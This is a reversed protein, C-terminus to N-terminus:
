RTSSSYRTALYTAYAGARIKIGDVIIEVEDPDLLGIEVFKQLRQRIQDENMFGYMYAYTLQTRYWSFHRWLRRNKLLRKYYEVQKKYKDADIAYSQLLDQFLKDYNPLYQADTIFQRISPLLLVLTRYARRIELEFGFIKLEQETWGGQAMLSTVQKVVDEPVAFRIYLDEFARVVRNVETSITRAYLYQLWLNAYTPEVRRDKLVKKVYDVPVNIYEAMTVLQSLTPITEGRSALERWNDVTAEIQATLDRIIKEEDTVGIM